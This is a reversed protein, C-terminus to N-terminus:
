RGLYDAWKNCKYEWKEDYYNRVPCRCQSVDSGCCRDYTEELSSGWLKRESNLRAGVPAAIILTLLVVLFSKM